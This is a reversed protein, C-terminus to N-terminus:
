TQHVPSGPLTKSEWRVISTVDDQGHFLCALVEAGHMLAVTLMSFMTLQLHIWPQCAIFNCQQSLMWCPVDQPRSSVFGGSDCQSQLAAGDLGERSSCSPRGNMSQDHRLRIMSLNHGAGKTLSASASTPRTLDSIRALSAGQMNGEPNTWDRYM